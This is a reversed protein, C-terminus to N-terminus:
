AKRSLTARRLAQPIMNWITGKTLLQSPHFNDLHRPSSPSAFPLPWRAGSIAGMADAQVAPPCRVGICVSAPLSTVAERPAGSPVDVAGPVGRGGLGIRVAMGGVAVGEAVIDGEGVGPVVGALCIPNGGITPLDARINQTM